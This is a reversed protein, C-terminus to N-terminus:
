PGPDRVLPVGRCYFNLTYTESLDNPVKIPQGTRAFDQRASKCFEYDRPPENRAGIMQSANALGTLATLALLHEKKIQQRLVQLLLWLGGLALAASNIGDQIVNTKLIGYPYLGIVLLGVVGILVKDQLRAKILVTGGAKTVRFFFDACFLAVTPVLYIYLFGHVYFLNRGLLLYILGGSTLLLWIAIRDRNVQMARWQNVFEVVAFIFFAPAFNRAQYQFFRALWLVPYYWVQEAHNLYGQHVIKQTLFAFVDGTQRLWMMYALGSVAGVVGWVVVVIRSRKKIWAYAFLGAFNMFGSWAFLGALVGTFGALNPRGRMLFIQSLLVPTLAFESIFDLHTGYYLGFFFISQFMMAAWAFLTNGPRYSRALLGVLLINAISFIGGFLRLVWEDLVGFLKAFYDIGFLLTPPHNPYFNIAGYKAKDLPCDYMPIGKSVSLPVERLCKVMQHTHVGGYNYHEKRKWPATLDYFRLGVGAVILILCFKKLDADGKFM